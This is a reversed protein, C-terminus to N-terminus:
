GPRIRLVAKLGAVADDFAKPSGLALAAFVAGQLTSFVMRADRQPDLDSRLQRRSMGDRIVRELWRLNAAFFSKVGARVRPPLVAVEAALVGCLCGQGAALGERYLGAYADLRALARDHEDWIQELREALREGYNQVIAAGLDEKTPFHHHISAKRIGVAASLDAYSFAAYGRQRVLATANATLADRTDTQM